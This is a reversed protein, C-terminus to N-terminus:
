PNLKGEISGDIEKGTIAGAAMKLLTILKGDKTDWYYGDEPTVKIITLSPDYELKKSILVMFLQAM